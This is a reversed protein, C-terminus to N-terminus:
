RSLDEVAGPQGYAGNHFIAYIEHNTRLILENACDDVSEPDAYDLEIVTLGESELRKIDEDNRATAFVKYGKEKLGKAVCYGIGTSCGTVLVNKM